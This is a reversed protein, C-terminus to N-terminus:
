QAERDSGCICMCMCMCVYMVKRSSLDIACYLVYIYVIRSDYELPNQDEDKCDRSLSFSFSVKYGAQKHM